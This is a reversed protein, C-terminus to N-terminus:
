LAVDVSEIVERLVADADGGGHLFVRHVLVPLALAKADDPLVYDRGDLLARARCASLWNM